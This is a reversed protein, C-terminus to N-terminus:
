NRNAPRKVEKEEKIDEHEESSIVRLEFQVVLGIIILLAGVLRWDLSFGLAQELFGEM